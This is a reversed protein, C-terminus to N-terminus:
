NPGHAGRCKRHIPRRLVRHGVFDSSWTLNLFLLLMVASESVHVVNEKVEGLLTGIIRTSESNRRNFANLINFVVSYSVQVSPLPSDNLTIAEMSSM